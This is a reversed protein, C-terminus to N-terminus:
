GARGCREGFGAPRRRILSFSLSRGNRDSRNSSMDPTRCHPNKTPSVTRGACAFVVGFTRDPWRALARPRVTRKVQGRVLAEAQFSAASEADSTASCGRPAGPPEHARSTNPDNGYKEPTRAKARADGKAVEGYAAM